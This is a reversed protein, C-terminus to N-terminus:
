NGYELMVALESGGELASYASPAEELQFVRPRLLESPRLRRVLDWTAGFRRSKSWRGALEARIESVQSM